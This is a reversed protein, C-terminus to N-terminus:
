IVLPHKYAVHLDCFNHISEVNSSRPKAIAVIAKSYYKPSIVRKESKNNHAHPSNWTILAVFVDAVSAFLTPINIKMHITQIWFKLDGSMIVWNLEFFWNQKPWVM